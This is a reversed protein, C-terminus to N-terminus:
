ESKRIADRDGDATCVGNDVLLTLFERAKKPRVHRVYEVQRLHQRRPLDYLFTAGSEGRRRFLVRQAGLSRRTPAIKKQCAVPGVGSKGGGNFPGDTGPM